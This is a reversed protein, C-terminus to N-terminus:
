RSSSALFRYSGSALQCQVGRPSAVVGSVGRAETLPVGSETVDRESAAPLTCTASTNAPVTFAYEVGGPVRKWSSRVEGRICRHLAEVFDLGPGPMPALEFAAFAEDGGKLGAVVGMLYDGVSGFAYHNFSNMGVDSFGREPTWGDWREWMTTAGLKM